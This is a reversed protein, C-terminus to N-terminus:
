PQKRSQTKTMEKEYTKSFINPVVLSATYQMM